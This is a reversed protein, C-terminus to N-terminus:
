RVAPSSAVPSRKSRPTLPSRTQVRAADAFKELETVPYRVARGFKCFVPGTRKLRWDQLANPTVGLFEAADNENVHRKNMKVPQM